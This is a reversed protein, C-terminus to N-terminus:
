GGGTAEDSIFYGSTKQNKKISTFSTGQMVGKLGQRPHRIAVLRDVRLCLHSRMM